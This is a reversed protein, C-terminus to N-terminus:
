LGGLPQERGADVFDVDVRADENGQIECCPHIYILEIMWKQELLQKNSSTISVFFINSKKQEFVIKWEM